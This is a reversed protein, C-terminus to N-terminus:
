YFASDAAADPPYDYLWTNFGYSSEWWQEPGPISTGPLYHTHIFDWGNDIDANNGDWAYNITGWYSTGSSSSGPIPDRAAPCLMVPPANALGLATNASSNSVHASIYPGIEGAWEGSTFLSPGSPPAAENKVIRYYLYYELTHGNYDQTYMIYAMGLQRLNSLCQATMAQQRARNLAPLLIAILLAIIGIVVLLEVLTFGKRSAIQRTEGAALHQSFNSM